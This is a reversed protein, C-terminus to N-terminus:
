EVLIDTRLGDATNDIFRYKADNKGSKKVTYMLSDAMNVMEDVTGAFHRFTIVGVSFTVRLKSEPFAAALNKRVREIVSRGNVTDTEPLLITFEDGGVRAVVDYMRLSNKITKSITKLVEDGANHGFRDNVNKFNDIDLYALTFPRDHRLMRKIEAGAIEFFFRRNAVSTLYDTRALEREYELASKMASLIYTFALFFGFKATTNWVPLTNHLPSSEPLIDTMFWAITSVISVLIASIISIIVGAWKGLFWAILFIPILYSISFFFDSGTYHDLVALFLVLVFGLIILLARSKKNLYELTKWM